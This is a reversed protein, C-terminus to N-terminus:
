HVVIGNGELFKELKHERNKYDGEIQLLFHKNCKLSVNFM